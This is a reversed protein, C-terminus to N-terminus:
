RVTSDTFETRATRLPRTSAGPSNGRQPVSATSVITAASTSSRLRRSGRARDCAAALQRNLHELYAVDPGQNPNKPAKRTRCELLADFESLGVQQTVDPPAKCPGALRRCM